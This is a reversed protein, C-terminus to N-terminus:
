RAVSSVGISCRIPFDADTNTGYEMRAMEDRGGGGLSAERCGFHAYKELLRPSEALESQSASPTPGGLQARTERGRWM